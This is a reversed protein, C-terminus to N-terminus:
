PPVSVEATGCHSTWTASTEDRLWHDETVEAQLGMQSGSEFISEGTVDDECLEAMMCRKLHQTFRERIEGVETNALSKTIVEAEPCEMFSLDMQEECIIM